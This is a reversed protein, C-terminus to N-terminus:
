ISCVSHSGVRPMSEALSCQLWPALDGRLADSSTRARSLRLQPAEDVRLNLLEGLLVTNVGGVDKDAPLDASPHTGSLRFRLRLSVSNKQNQLCDTQGLGDRRRADLAVELTLVTNLFSCRRWYHQDLTHVAQASTSSDSFSRSVSSFAAAARGGTRVTSGASAQPKSMKSSWFCFALSYHLLQLSTSKRNKYYCRAM